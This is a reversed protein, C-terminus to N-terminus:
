QEESKIECNAAEETSFYYQAKVGVNGSWWVPHWEGVSQANTYDQLVLGCRTCKQVLGDPIGAEHIVPPNWENLYAKKFEYENNFKDLIKKVSDSVPENNM